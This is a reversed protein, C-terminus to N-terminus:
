LDALNLTYGQRGEGEHLGVAVIVQVLSPCIRDPLRMEVSCNPRM